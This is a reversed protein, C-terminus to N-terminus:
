SRHRGNARRQPHCDPHRHEGSAISLTAPQLSTITPAPIVTFSAASTATGALTQVTLSGTTATPPVVAILTTPSTVTFTSSVGNFTVTQVNVFNTGTVTVSTGPQGSTPTFGTITPVAPSVTVQSAASGGNLTATVTTSGAAMATVTIPVTPQGATFAVHLNARHCGRSERQEGDSTGAATPAPALTVTLTGTPRGALLNLPNPTMATPQSGAGTDLVSITLVSGPASTLRVELTNNTQLTVARDIVAVNQGFDGPGAVQQREAKITASSIRKTGDANGNVIHITYPATTGAPLTFTDTFQNPAGATRTYTTPGFLVMQAQLVGVGLSMALLATFLTTVIARRRM